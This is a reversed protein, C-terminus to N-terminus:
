YTFILLYYNKNYRQCTFRRAIKRNIHRHDKKYSFGAIRNENFYCYKVVDKMYFWIARRSGLKLTQLRSIWKGSINSKQYPTLYFICSYMDTTESSFNIGSKSPKKNHHCLNTVVRGIIIDVQWITHRRTLYNHWSTLYNHWSTM